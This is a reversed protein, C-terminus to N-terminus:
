SSLQFFPNQQSAATPTISGTLWKDWRRTHKGGLREHLTSNSDRLEKACLLVRRLTREITDYREGAGRAIAAGM